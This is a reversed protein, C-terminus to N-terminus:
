CEVSMTFTNWDAAPVCCVGVWGGALAMVKSGVVVLEEDGLVLGGVMVEAVVAATDPLDYVGCLFHQCM